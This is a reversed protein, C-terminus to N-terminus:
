VKKNSYYVTGKDFAVVTIHNIVGATTDIDDGGYKIWTGPVTLAFGNCDIQLMASGAPTEGAAVLATAATLVQRAYITGAVNNLAVAGSFKDTYFPKEM